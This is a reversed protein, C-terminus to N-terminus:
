ASVQAHPKGPLVPGGGWAAILSTPSCAAGGPKGVAQCRVASVVLTAQKHKCCTRVAISSDARVKMTGFGGPIPCVASTRPAAGPPLCSLTSPLCRCRYSHPGPPCGAAPGPSSCPGAWSRGATRVTTCTLRSATSAPWRPGQWPALPSARRLLRPLFAVATSTASQWASTASPARPLSAPATSGYPLGSSPRRRAPAAGSHGASAHMLRPHVHAGQGQMCTCGACSM